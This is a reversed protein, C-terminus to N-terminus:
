RRETLYIYYFMSCFLFLFILFFNSFFLIPENLNIIYLFSLPFFFCFVFFCGVEERRQLEDADREERVELLTKATEAKRRPVWENAQLAFLEAVIFSLRVPLREPNTRAVYASEKNKTEKTENENENENEEQTVTEALQEQKDQDQKAEDQEQQNARIGNGPGNPNTLLRITEMYFQLWKRTTDVQELHKKSKASSSDDLTKGVVRILEVVKQVNLASMGNMLPQEGILRVICDHLVIEPLVGVVYLQGLFKVAGLTKLVKIDYEEMGEERRRKSVFKEPPYTPIQPDDQFKVQMANLLTQVFYHNMNPTANTTCLALVLKSYLTSFHHDQEIKNLLVQVIKEIIEKTSMMLVLKPVLSHFKEVTLKNLLSTAAKSPDKERTRLSPPVWANASRQPLPELEEEKEADAETATKTEDSPAYSVATPNFEFASATASLTFSDEEKEAETAIATDEDLAPKFEGAEVSLSRKKAASESDTSAKKKKIRTSSGPRM